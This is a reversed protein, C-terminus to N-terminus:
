IDANNGLAAADTGYIHWMQATIIGCTRRKTGSARRVAASNGATRGSLPSAPIPTPTNQSIFATLPDM